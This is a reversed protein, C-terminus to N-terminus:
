SLALFHFLSHSNKKLNMVASSYCRESNMIMQSYLVRETVYRFLESNVRKSVPCELTVIRSVLCELKMRRSVPCEWIVRRSVCCGLNVM